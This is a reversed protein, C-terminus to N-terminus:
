SKRKVQETLYNINEQQRQLEELLFKLDAPSNAIFEMNAKGYDAPHTSLEAVRRFSGRGKESVFPDGHMNPTAEWDASSLAELRASIEKIRQVTEPSTEPTPHDM